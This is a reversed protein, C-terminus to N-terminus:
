RRSSKMLASERTNEWVWKLIKWWKRYKDNRKSCIFTSIFSNQFWHSAYAVSLAVEYKQQEGEILFVCSYSIYKKKLYIDYNYLSTM